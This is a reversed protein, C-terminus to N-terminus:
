WPGAAIACWATIADAPRAPPAASRVMRVFAPTRTPHATAAHASSGALQTSSQVTGSSAPPDPPAPPAPPPAPAADVSRTHEAASVHVHGDSSPHSMAHVAVLQSTRHSLPATHSTPHVPPSHSMVHSLRAVQSTPHVPEDQPSVHWAAETHVSEQVLPAEQEIAQSSYASHM